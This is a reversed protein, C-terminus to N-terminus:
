TPLKPDYRIYGDKGKKLFYKEFAEQTHKQDNFFGISFMGLNEKLETILQGMIIHSIGIVGKHNYLGRNPAGLEKGKFCM